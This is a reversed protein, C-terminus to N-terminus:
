MLSRGRNMLAHQSNKASSVVIRMEGDRERELFKTINKEHVRRFGKIYHCESLICRAPAHVEQYNNQIPQLHRFHSIFVLESSSVPFATRPIADTVCENRNRHGRKLRTEIDVSRGSGVTTVPWTYTQFIFWENRRLRFCFSAWLAQATDVFM